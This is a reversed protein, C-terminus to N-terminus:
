ERPRDDHRRHQGERRAGRLRGLRTEPSQAESRRRTPGQPPRGHRAERPLRRLGERVRERPASRGHPEPRHRLLPPPGRKTERRREFALAAGGDLPRSATGRRAGAARGEPSRALDAQTQAKRDAQQYVTPDTIGNLQTGLNQQVLLVDAGARYLKQQQLSLAVAAAPVLIVAQLIIWKRRRVVRLYDRLTTGQDRQGAEVL